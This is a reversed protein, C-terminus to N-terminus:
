SRLTAAPRERLRKLSALGTAYGLVQRKAPGLRGALGLGLNRLLQLPPIDNSFTYYFGDMLSMMTLNELRRQQEYHNLVSLTGPALGRTRAEALAAALAAVDQFGLNVGQGALPNITHAADGVLAIGPKFYARAHRKILPFRGRRSIRRLPPLTDPFEARIAGMLAEDPLAMLTDIREPQDYWVLSAFAQGAVACLPLYALPGHPTFAQWTIDQAAGDHEVGIVFAHQTYADQRVGLGALERIGSNGGDAGILLRTAIVQGNSLRLRVGAESADLLEVAEAAELHIRPERAVAALLGRQVVRNEIMHGLHTQDIERAAFDTRNLPHALGPLRLARASKEWVALRAYPHARQALIDPWAGWESLLAESALNIASVRVDPDEAPNFPPPPSRELLCVSYGLRALALAQAAGVMGGGTILIDTRLSPGSKRLAQESSM